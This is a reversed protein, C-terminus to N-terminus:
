AGLASLVARLLVWGGWALVGMLVGSGAALLVVTRRSERRARGPAALHTELLALNRTNARWVADFVDGAVPIAGILVDVLTRGLMRALVSVPAGLRIGAWILHLSIAFGVWDGVGPILGLLPDLGIRRGIGPIRISRDMVYAIARARRLAPPAHTTTPGTDTVDVFPLPGCGRAAAYRGPRAM